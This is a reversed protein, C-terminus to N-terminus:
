QHPSIMWRMSKDSHAQNSCYLCTQGTGTYSTDVLTITTILHIQEFETSVRGSRTLAAGLNPSSPSSCYRQVTCQPPQNDWSYLKFAYLIHIRNNPWLSYHLNPLATCPMLLHHTETCWSETRWDIQVMTGFVDMNGLCFKGNSQSIYGEAARTLPPM